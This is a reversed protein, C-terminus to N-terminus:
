FRVGVSFTVNRPAGPELTRRDGALYITEDLLNRVNARVVLGTGNSLETEYAISADVQTYSPLVFNAQDSDIRRGVYFAGGGLSLKQKGSDSLPIDYNVYLSGAHKPINGFPNSLAAPNLRRVRTKIYSYSAIVQLRETIDGVADVEFGRSRFLGGAEYFFGNGAVDPAPIYIPLDQKKVEYVAATLRLSEDLLDAKLGAEFAKSTPAPLSERNFSLQSAEGPSVGTSYTSYVSFQPTVEYLAGLQYNVDDNKATPSGFRRNEFDDYRVGAFLNLTDNITVQDVLGLGYGEFGFNSTLNPALARLQSLNVGYVPNYVDISLNLQNPNTITNVFDVRSTRYDVFATVKHTISGSGLTVASTAFLQDEDLDSTRRNYARRVRFRGNADVFTTRIRMAELDHAFKHHAYYLRSTVRDSWDVSLDANIFTDQLESGRLSPEGLFRDIPVNLVGGQGAIIGSDFTRDLEAHSFEATLTARDGIKLTASPAVAVVEREVFDRFSENDQYAGILRLSLRDSVPGTVDGTVRYFDYSGAQAQFGAFFRDLPRKTSYNVFGGPEVTGYSISNPGKIVEISEISSLDVAGLQATPIGNRNLQTNTFGRVNYSLITGVNDSNNARSVGSVNRVADDITLVNQDELLEAPIISISLPTTDVDFPFRSTESTDSLYGTARRGTVTITEVDADDDAAPRGDTQAGAPVTLSLALATTCFLRMGRSGKSNSTMM